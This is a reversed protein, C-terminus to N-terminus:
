MQEDNKNVVATYVCSWIYWVVLGCIFGLVILAGILGMIGKSFLDSFSDGLICLSVNVGTCLGILMGYLVSKVFMGSKEGWSFVAPLKQILSTICVVILFLISNMDLTLPEDLGKLMVYSGLTTMFYIVAGILISGISVDFYWRTKKNIIMKIEATLFPVCGCVCVWIFSLTVSGESLFRAGFCNKGSLILSYLVLMVAIAAGHWPIVKIKESLKTKNGVLIGILVEVDDYMDDAYEYCGKDYSMAKKVIDCYGSSVGYDTLCKYGQPNMDAKGNFLDPCIKDRFECINDELFFGDDHAFFAMIVGLPYIDMKPDQTDGESIRVPDAYGETYANGIPKENFIEGAIDNVASERSAGWDILLYKDAEPYYMINAPKVDRHRRGDNHAKKLDGLIDHMMRLVEIERKKKDFASMREKLNQFCPMNVCLLYDRIKDGECVAVVFPATLDAEYSRDLMELTYAEGKLLLELFVSQKKEELSNCKDDNVSHYDPKSGTNYYYSFHFSTVKLASGNKCKFVVGSGGDGLTDEITLGFSEFIEKCEAYGCISEIYKKGDNGRMDLTNKLNLWGVDFGRFRGVKTHKYLVSTKSKTGKNVAVITSSIM